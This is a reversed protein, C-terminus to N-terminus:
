EYRLAVMPDIKTARRLPAYIAVASILAIAGLAALISTLGFAEVGYLMSNILKGLVYALPIGALVGIVALWAVEGGLMWGVRNPGAGLAVRVGIEKTRQTM